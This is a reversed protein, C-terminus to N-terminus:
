GGDGPPAIRALDQGLQGGAMYALLAGVARQQNVSPLPISFIAEGEATGEDTEDVAVATLSLAEGRELLALTGPAAPFVTQVPEGAPQTWIVQNAPDSLDGFHLMYHTEGGLPEFANLQLEVAPAMVFRPHDFTFDMSDLNAEFEAVAEPALESRAQIMPSVAAMVVVNGRRARVATRAGGLVGQPLLQLSSPDTWPRFEEVDWLDEPAGVFRLGPQATDAAAECVPSSVTDCVELVVPRVLIAGECPAAAEEVGGAQEVRERGRAQVDRMAEQLRTRIAERARDRETAIATDQSAAWRRGLEGDEEFWRRVATELSDAPDFPAVATSDELRVAEDLAQLRRARDMLPALERDLAAVDALAGVCARSRATEVRALESPVTPGTPAPPEEQATLVAPSLALVAVFTYTKM